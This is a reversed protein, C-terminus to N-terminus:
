PSYVSRSFHAMLWQSCWQRLPRNSCSDLHFSFGSFTDDHFPLLANLFSPRSHPPCTALLPVSSFRHSRSAKTLASAWRCADSSRSSSSTSHQYHQEPSASAKVRRDETCVPSRWAPSLRPGAFSPLGSSFAGHWQRSLYQHEVRGALMKPRPGPSVSTPLTSTTGARM